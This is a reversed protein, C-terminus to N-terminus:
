RRAISAVRRGRLARVHRPHSHRGHASLRGAAGQSSDHPQPDDIAVRCDEAGVELIAARAEAAHKEFYELLEARSKPDFFEMAPGDVPAIDLDELQATMTAWPAMDAIHGALQGMPMSKPHPRYDIHEDPVLELIRRTNAMEEDYEIIFGDAIRM